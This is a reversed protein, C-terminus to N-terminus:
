LVDKDQNYTDDNDIQIKKGKILYIGAIIVVAAFAFRPVYDFVLDMFWWGYSYGFLNRLMYAINELLVYSGMLILIVAAPIRFKGAPIKFGQSDNTFLYGDQIRDFEEDPLSNTNLSDFFSYAWIVPLGLLLWDINVIGALLIEAFFISMISTGKKLFGQYMQGAGPVFSLLFNWFQNRKHPM